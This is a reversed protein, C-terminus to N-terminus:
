KFLLGLITILASIGFVIWEGQTHPLAAGIFAAYTSAGFISGTVSAVPNSRIGSLGFNSRFFDM